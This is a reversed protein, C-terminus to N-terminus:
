RFGGIREIYRIAHQQEQLNLGNWRKPSNELLDFVFQEPANFGKTRPLAQYAESGLKQFQRFHSLEHWVEYQTPNSKLSLSSGDQAFGGAKGPPLFEDGVRLKVGRRGLYGELQALKKPDYLQGGLRGTDGLFDAGRLSNGGVSVSSGSIVRAEASVFSTAVSRGASQVCFRAISTATFPLASALVNFAAQSQSIRAGTFLDNGSSLEIYSKVTGLV